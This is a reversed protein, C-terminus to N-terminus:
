IRWEDEAFCCCGSRLQVCIYIWPLFNFYFLIESLDAEVSFSRILYLNNNPM